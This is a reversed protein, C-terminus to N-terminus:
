AFTVDGHLAKFGLCQIWLLAQLSGTRLLLLLSGGAEAVFAVRVAAPVAPLAPRRGRLGPQSSVPRHLCPVPTLPRRGPAQM